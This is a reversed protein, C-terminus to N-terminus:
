LKSKSASVPMGHYVPALSVLSNGNQQDATFLMIIGEKEAKALYDKLKGCGAEKYVRSNEKTLQKGLYSAVVRSFGTTRQSELVNALLEFQPPPDVLRYTTPETPMTAFEKPLEPTFSLPHVLIQAGPVVPTSLSPTSSQPFHHQLATTRLIEESSVAETVVGPTTPVPDAADTGAAAEASTGPSEM